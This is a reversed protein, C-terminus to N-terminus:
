ILEVPFVTSVAIGHRLVIGVVNDVGLVLDVVVISQYDSRLGVAVLLRHVKVQRLSATEIAAVDAHEAESVRVTITSLVFSSGRSLRPGSGLSPVGLRVIAGVTSRGDEADLATRYSDLVHVGVTSGASEADLDVVLWRCHLDCVRYVFRSAIVVRWVEVAREFVGVGTQYGFREPQYDVVVGVALLVVVVYDFSRRCAVPTM